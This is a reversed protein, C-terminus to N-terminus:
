LGVGAKVHRMGPFLLQIMLVKKPHFFSELLNTNWSWSPGLAGMIEKVNGTSTVERQAKSAILGGSEVFFYSLASNGIAAM